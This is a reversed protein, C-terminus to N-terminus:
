YVLLFKEKVKTLPSSLNLVRTLVVSIPQPSYFPSCPFCLISVPQTTSKSSLNRITGQIDIKQDYFLLRVTGSCQEKKTTKLSRRDVKTEYKFKPTSAVLDVDKSPLFVADPFPTANSINHNKKTQCHQHQCGCQHHFTPKCKKGEEHSRGLRGTEM